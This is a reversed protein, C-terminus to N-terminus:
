SCMFLNSLLCIYYNYLCLPGGNVSLAGGVNLCPKSNIAVVSANANSFTWSANGEADGSIIM